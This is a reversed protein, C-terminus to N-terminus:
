VKRALSTRLSPASRRRAAIGATSTTPWVLALPHIQRDSRAWFV